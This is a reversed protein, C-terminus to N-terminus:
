QEEVYTVNWEPHEPDPTVTLSLENEFELSFIDDAKSAASTVHHNILQCLADRSGSGPFVYTAGSVTVRTVGVCTVYYRDFQLMLYDRIFWVAVCEEDVLVHELDEDRGTLVRTSSHVTNRRYDALIVEWEPHSPDPTVSIVSGNDFVVELSDDPWSRAKAVRCGICGWLADRSGSAPFEYPVGGVVVRLLGVCTITTRELQLMVYDRVFWVEILEDHPLAAAWDAATEDVM